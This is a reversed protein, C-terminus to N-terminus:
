NSYELRDPPKSLRNYRTRIETKKVKSVHVWRLQGDIDLCVNSKDNLDIIKYPGRWKDRRLKAKLGVRTVPNNLMVLQGVKYFVQATPKIRGESYEASKLINVKAEKWTEDIKELFFQNPSWKDIDLPLRYDRGYLLRFPTERTTKQESTRYAFLVSPLYADWDTQNENCYSSLMKCLTDNFKETLGNCQPHYSTTNVKKIKFYKCTEAVIDSLFNRGKDSLLTSPASHRCIIEEIFIRAVTDAKQDKTPFAEVWRTAYDTFVLIHKNGNDTETLPGIFDVGIMEFPKTPHTISHIPINQSQPNKKGACVKCSSVWNRVDNKMGPWFFRSSIKKFTKTIGLHAGSMDDHCGRLVAEKMDVPIVLRWVEQSEYKKNQEKRCFLVDDRLKYKPYDGKHRENGRVKKLITTLKPDSNQYARVDKDTIGVEADEEDIMCVEEEIRSLVDANVNDKGPKYKIDFTHEALALKWRTLRESKSTSTNLHILPKHDTVLDFTRGYIYPRFKDIAFIIALLELETTSYNKEARTLKKSAYAIVRDVGEDDEQSLIVGLGINSADTTLKFKKEFNPYVLIPPSLLCEKLKEFAEECENTWVFPVTKRTLQTLPSAISSFDKIFKRYYNSLGIFRQIAKANKPRPYNKITESRSQCVKIGEQSVIFGLFKIESCGFKCKSPKIKLKAKRLREFVKRLDALHNVFGESATIVDDMYASSNPLDQCVEEMARQFSAGANCLGFPMRLFMFTGKHTIFSTFLQSEPDM